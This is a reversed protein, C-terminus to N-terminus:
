QKFNIEIEGLSRKPEIMFFPCKLLATDKPQINRFNKYRGLYGSVTVIIKENNDVEVSYRPDILVDATYHILMKSRAIIKVAETASRIQLEQMNNLIDLSTQAAQFKKQNFISFRKKELKRRAELLEKDLLTIEYPFTERKPEVELDAVTPMQIVGVGVIDRSVAEESKRHSRTIDLGRCSLLLNAAIFLALLAVASTIIIKKM